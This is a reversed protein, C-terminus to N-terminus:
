AGRLSRSLRLGANKRQRDHWKRTIEEAMRSASSHSEPPWRQPDVSHTEYAAQIRQTIRIM